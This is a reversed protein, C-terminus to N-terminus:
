LSNSYATVVGVEVTTSLKPLDKRRQHQHHQQEGKVGPSSPPSAAAEHEDKTEQPVPAIVQGFFCSHSLYQVTHLVRSCPFPCVTCKKHVFDNSGAEGRRALHALTFITKRVASLSWIEFIPWCRRLCKKILSGYWIKATLVVKVGHQMCCYINYQSRTM